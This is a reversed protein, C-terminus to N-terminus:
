PQKRIMKLATKAATSKQSASESIATLAGMVTGADYYEVTDMLGEELTYFNGAQAMGFEIEVRKSLRSSRMTSAITERTAQDFFNKQYSAEMGVIGGSVAALIAKVQATGTVAGAGNLGILLFDSVTNLAAQKAFFQAEFKSYSQDTLYLIEQIIQNRRAVKAPGEPLLDYDRILTPSKLDTLYNNTFVYAPLPPAPRYAKYTGRCGTLLMMCVLVGALSKTQRNM